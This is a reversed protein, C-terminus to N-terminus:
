VIFTTLKFNTSPVYVYVLEVSCVHIYYLAVLSWLHTPCVNNGDKDTIDERYPCLPATSSDVLWRSTECYGSFTM